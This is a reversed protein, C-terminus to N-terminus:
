KLVQDKYSKKAEAFTIGLVWCLMDAKSRLDVQVLALPANEFVTATPYWLRDDTLLQQLMTVIEAKQKM